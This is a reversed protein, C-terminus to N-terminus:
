PTSRRVHVTVILWAATVAILGPAIVVSWVWTPLHVVENVALLPWVVALLGGKALWVPGLRTSRWRYRLGYYLVWSIQLAALVSLEAFLLRDM